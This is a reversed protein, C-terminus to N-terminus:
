KQALLYTTLDALDQASLALSTAPLMLSVGLRERSAIDKAAIAHQEGNVDKLLVPDGAGVLMGTLTTDDKKTILWPEFGFAISASPNLLADLM